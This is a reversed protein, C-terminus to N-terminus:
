GFIGVPGDRNYILHLVHALRDCLLDVRIRRCYLERDRAPIGGSNCLASVEERFVPDHAIIAWQSVITEGPPWGDPGPKMSYVMNETVVRIEALSFFSAERLDRCTFACGSPHNHTLIGGALLPLVEEPILTFFGDDFSIAHLRLVMLGAPSFVATEETDTLAHISREFRLVAPPISYVLDPSM